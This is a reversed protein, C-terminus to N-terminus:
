KLWRLSNYITTINILGDTDHLALVPMMHGFFRNCM